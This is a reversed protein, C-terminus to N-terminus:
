GRVKEKIRRLETRMGRMEKRSQVTEDILERIAGHTAQAGVRYAAEMRDGNGGMGSALAEQAQGSTLVQARNGLFVVENPHARFAMGTGGGMARGPLADLEELRDAIIDYRRGASAGVAGGTGRETGAFDLMERLFPIDSSNRYMAFLAPEYQGILSEKSAGGALDASYQGFLANFDGRTYNAAPGAQTSNIWQQLLAVQAQNAALDLQAVELQQVAISKTSQLVSEVEERDRWFAGGSANLDRSIELLKMGLEPLRAQADLDGGAAAAKAEDWMGRVNELRQTASLGFQADTALRFLASDSGSIVNGLGSIRNRLTEQIARLGNLEETLTSIRLARVRQESAEIERQISPDVPTEPTPPTPTEPVVPPIVDVTVTLARLADDALGVVVPLEAFTTKILNLQEATLRGNKIITAVTDSFIKDITPALNTLGLATADGLMTNKSSIAGMISNLFGNGAAENAMGNVMTTFDGRIIDLQGQLVDNVREGSVGLENLIGGMETFQDTLSKVAQEVASVPGSPNALMEELDLFQQLIALKEFSANASADNSFDLNGLAAQFEEPVDQMTTVMRQVVSKWAAELTDFYQFSADGAGPDYSVGYGKYRDASVNVNGFGLRGGTIGTLGNALSKISNALADVASRNQPSDKNPGLDFPTTIGSNLDIKNGELMASPRAGFQSVIQGIAFLAAALPVNGAMLAVGAGAGGISSGYPNRQNLMEGVGYGVLGGAIGAGGYAALTPGGTAFGPYAGAGIGSGTGLHTAGWANVAGMMGTAGGVAAGGSFLGGAASGAASGAAGGVGGTMRIMIEQAAIQAVVQRWIAILANGFDKFSDINGSLMQDFADAMSQQIERATNEWIQAYFDAQERMAEEREQKRGLAENLENVRNILKLIEAAEADTATKMKERMQLEFELQNATRSGMFLEAEMVAVKDRLSETTDAIADKRRKEYQEAKEYVRMLKDWATQQKTTWEVQDKTSLNLNGISKSMDLYTMAAQEAILNSRVMKTNAEQLANMNETLGNAPMKFAEWFKELPGVTMDSMSSALETWANKFRPVAENAAAIVALAALGKKGFLVGVILGWEQIEEPMRSYGDILFGMSSGVTDLVNIITPGLDVAREIGVAIIEAFKIGGSVFEPRNFVDAIGAIAASLNATTGEATNIENVYQGFANKVMIMADGVTKPITAFQTDILQGSKGLGQLILSTAVGGDKGMRVLSQTTIGLGKAVHDLLGGANELLSNFEDGSVKGKTLSQTFQRIVSETEQASVGSIKLSKTFLENIRLMESTSLGLADANRAMRTYLEATGAFTSGTQQAINFLATQVMKLEDTSKTVLKLRATTLTYADALQILERAAIGVGLGVMLTQLSRLPALMNTMQRQLMAMERETKQTADATKKAADVLALLDKAALKVDRSDVEIGLVAIDDAM